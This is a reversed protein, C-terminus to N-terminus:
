DAEARHVSQELQQTGYNIRDSGRTREEREGLLTLAARVREYVKLFGGHRQLWWFEQHRVNCRPALCQFDARGTDEIDLLVHCLREAVMRNRVRFSWLWFHSQLVDCKRYGRQRRPVDVAVGIKFRFHALFEKDGIRHAHWDGLIWDDVLGLVYLFGPGERAFISPFGALAAIRALPTCITAELGHAVTAFSPFVTSVNTEAVPTHLSLPRAPRLRRRLIRVVPPPSLPPAYFLHDILAAVLLAAAAVAVLVLM